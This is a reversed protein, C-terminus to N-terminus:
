RGLKRQYSRQAILEPPKNTDVLKFVDPYSLDREEAYRYNFKLFTLM